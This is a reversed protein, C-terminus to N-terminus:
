AYQGRLALWAELLLVVGGVADFGSSHGIGAVADLDKKIRDDRNEILGTILDHLPAAGMGEGAAALHAHSILTTGNKSKKEIHQWLSKAASDTGLYSCAILFGAIVDDGSPTLGPGLGILQGLAPLIGLDDRALWGIAERRLTQVPGAAARESATRPEKSGDLVLNLFGDSHHDLELNKRLNRLGKALDDPSPPSKTLPMPRWVSASGVDIELPSRGAPFVVNGHVAWPEGIILAADSAATWLDPGRILVNLPGDHLAEDALCILRDGVGLYFSRDFVAIVNLTTENEVLDKALPGISVAEVRM